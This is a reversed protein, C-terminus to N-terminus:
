CAVYGFANNPFNSRTWKIDKVDSSRWKDTSTPNTIKITPPLATVNVVATKVGTGLSSSATLKVTYNGETAYVCSPNAISSTLGNGFDWYYSSAFKSTNTFNVTLPPTGVSPNLNFDATPPPTEVILIAYEEPDDSRSTNNSWDQDDGGNEGDVRNIYAFIYYIGPTSPAVVTRHKHTKEGPALDDEEEERGFSYDLDEDFDKDSSLHIFTEFYDITEDGKNTVAVRVQFTEGPYLTYTHHWNNGDRDIEVKKVNADPGNYIPSDDGADSGGGFGSVYDALSSIEEKGYIGGCNSMCRYEEWVKQVIMRWENETQQSCLGGMEYCDLYHLGVVGENYALIHIFGDPYDIDNIKVEIEGISRNSFQCAPSWNYESVFVGTANGNVDYNVKEVFAVHGYNDSSNNPDGTWNYEWYAIDGPIPFNDVKINARKAANDWNGGNSWTYTSGSPQLYTNNFDVGYIGLVFAAYSTCNNKCFGYEDSFCSTMCGSTITYPYGHNDYAFANGGLVVAVSLILIWALRKM